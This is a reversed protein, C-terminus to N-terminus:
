PTPQFDVTEVVQSTVPTRPQGNAGAVAGSKVAETPAVGHATQQATTVVGQRTANMGLELMRAIYPSSKAMSALKSAIGLKESIQLGKLAEDGMAFEAISEAVKGATEQGNTSKLYDPETFSSPLGLKDRWSDPMLHGAAAGVTHALEGVGKAVGTSFEGTDKAPIRIPNGFRDRGQTIMEPAQHAPITAPPASQETENAQM